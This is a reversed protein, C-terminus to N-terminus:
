VSGRKLIRYATVKKKSRTKTAVAQFHIPFTKVYKKEVLEKKAKKVTALSLGTDETLDENTRFFYDTDDTCFRHELECLMFYVKCATPTLCKYDSNFVGRDVQLFYREKYKAM